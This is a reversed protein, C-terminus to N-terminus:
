SPQPNELWYPLFDTAVQQPKVEGTALHRVLMSLAHAAQPTLAAESAKPLASLLPAASLTKAQEVLPDLSASIADADIRPTASTLASVYASDEVLEHAYLLDSLKSAADFPRFPVMGSDYSTALGAGSLRHRCDAVEALFDKHQRAHQDLDAYGCGRLIAEEIAFHACLAEEFRILGALMAELGCQNIWLAHLEELLCSLQAHGHDIISNGIRVPIMIHADMRLRMM